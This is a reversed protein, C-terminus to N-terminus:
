VSSLMSVAFAVLPWRQSPTYEILEVIFVWQELKGTEHQEAWVGDAGCCMRRNGEWCREWENIVTDLKRESVGFM